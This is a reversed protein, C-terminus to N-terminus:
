TFERKINRGFSLVSRTPLRPTCSLGLTGACLGADSHPGPRPSPRASVLDPACALIERVGLRKKPDPVLIKTILDRAARFLPVHPHKLHPPTPSTSHAGEEGVEEWESDPFSFNSSLVLDLFDDPNDAYFPLTGSLRRM